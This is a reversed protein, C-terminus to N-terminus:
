KQRALLGYATEILIEHNGDFLTITVPGATRQFVVPKTYLPDEPAEDKLEDPVREERWFIRIQEETFMKETYGNVKALANFVMLSHDVPVVGTGPHGDHIGHSIHMTVGQAQEIFSMPSRLRYQEDIEQSIGPSGGCVAEMEQAYRKNGEAGKKALEVCQHYWQALDAIGCSPFVARWLQPAKAAMMFSTFGGGSNGVCYIRSEDVNAHTKAYEVADFIDQQALPSLCADPNRNPGRFHPYIFIIGYEKSMSVATMVYGVSEDYGRSWSHLNVALPHPTGGEKEAGPPIYFMAPQRTGDLTSTFRINQVEDPWQYNKVARTVPDPFEPEKACSVVMSFLFGGVWLIVFQRFFKM